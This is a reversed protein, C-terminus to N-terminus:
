VHARGIEDAPTEAPDTPLYFFNLEIAAAGAAQLDPAIGVWGERTMANLSAIVPVSVSEVARRVMEVHGAQPRRCGCLPPLYSTVEPHSEAGVILAAELAEEDALIEGEYLSATVIAAAGGDELRRIGDLTASLPSAGAIVPHALQLGLYTTELNM